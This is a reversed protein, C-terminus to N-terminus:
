HLIPGLRHFLQSLEPSKVWSAAKKPSVWKRKRQTREPFESSISRVCLPFVDVLCFVSSKGSRPKVYSFHGLPKNACKGKVGAEEWAERGATQSPTMDEILWGKPIIWRKSKRSTILLVRLRGNKIRYCLAASQHM